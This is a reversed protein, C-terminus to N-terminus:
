LPAPPSKSTTARLRRGAAIAARHRERTLPTPRAATKLLRRALHEAHPGLAERFTDSAAALELILPRGLRCTGRRTELVDGRNLPRNELLDLVLADAVPRVPEMLDTALSSRYRVDAHMLGLSPDFGIAHAAIIAETELIAYAYNLLAHAPTV